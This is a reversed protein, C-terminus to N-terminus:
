ANAQISDGSDPGRKNRQVRIDLPRSTDLHIDRQPFAIVIGADKFMQEITQNLESITAMRDELSDLFCRLRLGLTNDGFGEFLVYPAPDDMVREHREAAEAMLAMAKQVDSGYAVGVPISIRTVQDSLSWNLLRSTIFEKNPVLLEKRDWQRITTARIQIRTIVGDTDGVTVVDGVRIPREFLIILGSIFNAVIEQLGFGIGVGLAAVLWQIQGWSAGITNFALVGGIAAIVYRSLTKAAYRTGSSIKLRQLLAMELLAPFRKTAAFTIIVILVALATDALTVPVRQEQGAVVITQYWLTIEDFIAFAPLVESWIMWIGVIGAIVLGTKTLERSEVNLAALDVEQEEVELLNEGIAQEGAEAQGAERAADRRELAAKLTLKRHTMLLWRVVLQHAVILLLVFWLTEILRGTLKGATYLYGSAALGALALPLAVALTIWLYRLRALLSKPYHAMFSKLAGRRPEFLRYFFLAFAILVVMFAIRGLGGGLAASEYNIEVIAVFAAPLLVVMLRILERRLRVLTPQPWRFHAAALGDPECLVRFAQLYFFAKSVWILAASIAKAFHGTELSLALGWGSGAILLPWPSALLLTILLAQFTYAFRDRSPKVIRRGTDQLINRLQKAKWLLVVFGLLALMLLASGALQSFLLNVTELWLTPSLLTAIQGPIAHLMPINPPPASRIWLLRKDLFQDYAEIADLLRRNSFDLEGLARVYARDLSIAQTLLAKRNEALQELENRIAEAEEGALDMKLADVYGDVDRLRRYEEEHQIKRLGADAIDKERVRAKRRFQRGDPLSQRQELLVQGLAQSLGALELKQQSSRFEEAVRKAEGTAADNEASVKELSAALTSLEESLVANQEALVGLLPHKGKAERVAEEAQTQAQEAEALRRGSLMQELIQIRTRAREVSRATADRQAELLEIRMPQSLLEQDLMIVEASLARRESELL